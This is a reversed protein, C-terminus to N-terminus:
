TRPERSCALSFKRLCRQRVRNVRVSSPLKCVASVCTAGPILRPRWHSNNRKSVCSPFAKNTPFLHSAIDSICSEVNYMYYNSTEWITRDLWISCCRAKAVYQDLLLSTAIFQDLLLSSIAEISTLLSALLGAHLNVKLYGSSYSNMHRKISLRSKSALIYKTCILEKQQGIM